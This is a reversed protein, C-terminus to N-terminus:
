YTMMMQLNAKKRIQFMKQNQKKNKKNPTRNKHKSNRPPFITKKRRILQNPQKHSFQNKLAKKKSNIKKTKKM